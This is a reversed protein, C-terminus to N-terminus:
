RRVVLLANGVAREGTPDSPRNRVAGAVWLATSGGGDLNLGEEVGLERLLTALEAFTMGVSATQRGDVAILWLIRGGDSTGIVSRPHRQASLSPATREISDTRASVDHGGRVLIGWGGVLTTPRLVTPAGPGVASTDPTEPTDPRARATADRGRLPDGAEFRHALRVRADPRWRRRVAAVLSDLRARGAGDYAVLRIGQVVTDATVARTSDAVPLVGWRADFHILAAGERPIGNVGDLAFARRGATATGVYRLRGIVPTGDEAIAFQGRSRWRGNRVPFGPIAKWVAGDIVQHDTVEGTRLDFFDANLAVLVEGSGAARGRAADRAAIASTTERSRVSDGAHRAVVTWPGAARDVRVIHAVWPGAAQEVRAYGVGPAVREFPIPGQARLVAGTLLSGAIVIRKVLRPM